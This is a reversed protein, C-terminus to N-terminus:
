ACPQLEPQPCMRSYLQLYRATMIDDTFRELARRRAAAGLDACREVNPGLDRLKRALAAADGPPFFTACGDWIERFSPIDSLVLAAGHFAAELPALGFPEYISAAVYVTARAMWEDLQRRPAQGHSIANGATFSQGNPGSTSGFLHLQGVGGADAAAADVVAMGKAPDWARGVSVVLPRSRRRPEGMPPRAGNHIVLDASRGYHRRTLDSQYRSPAAVAGAAALGATVWERYASWEPSAPAGTAESYWSLVDSHVVVLTPAGFDHVAYAMQNLHVVDAGWERAERALWRGAAEVDAASDPMWELAYDAAVVEAAPDLLALRDEGPTGLIAVKVLHGAAVLADTLTTTYEWVGGVVDTTMFIRM